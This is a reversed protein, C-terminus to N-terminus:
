PQPSIISDHCTGRCFRTCTSPESWEHEARNSLWTWMAVRRRMDCSSAIVASSNDLRTRTSSEFWEIYIPCRWVHPKEGTLRITELNGTMDDVVIACGFWKWIWDRSTWNGCSILFTMKLRHKAASPAMTSGIDFLSGELPSTGRRPSGRRRRQPTRSLLLM